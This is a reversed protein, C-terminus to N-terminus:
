ESSASETERKPRGGKKVSEREMRELTMATQAAFMMAGIERQNLLLEREDAMAIAILAVYSKINTLGQLAPMAALWARAATRNAEYTNMGKSKCGAFIKRYAEDCKARCRQLHTQQKDEVAFLTIADSM